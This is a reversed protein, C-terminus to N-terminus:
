CSIEITALRQFEARLISEKKRRARAHLRGVGCSRCLALSTKVAVGCGTCPFTGGVKALRANHVKCYQGLCSKGYVEVTGLLLWACNNTGKMTVSETYELGHSGRFPLHCESVCMCVSLCGCVSVCLILQGKVGLGLYSTTHVNCMTYVCWVRITAGM